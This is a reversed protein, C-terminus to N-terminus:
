APRCLNTCTKAASSNKNHAYKIKRREPLTHCADHFPPFPSTLSLFPSLHFILSVSLHHPTTLTTLSPSSTASPLHSLTTPHTILSHALPLPPPASAFHSFHHPPIHRPFTHSPSTSLRSVVVVVV